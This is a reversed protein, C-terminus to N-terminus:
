CGLLKALAANDAGHARARRVIAPPVPRCDEVGAHRAQRRWRAAQERLADGDSPREWDACHAVVDRMALSIMVGGGAAHACWAALAAHLGTLPDAIADGCFAWGEGAHALLASLGGAVGADDGFAVWNAAPEDRGYGTISIWSLGPRAAILAEAELGLHALARPRSAEIVIDAWEVLRRLCAIDAASGFDLAVCQKGANVLDFFAANGARAGDPRRTSEVKVVQAGLQHLLQGCLPGAWLSSLDLVRPARGGRAEPAREGHRRVRCWPVAVAPLVADAVPLGMMRGREVVAHAQRTRLVAALAEWDDLGDQELWAPLLARDEARALSLALMGDATQLLRCAGGASTRGRRGLGLLAARHALMAGGQRWAAPLVGGAADLAQLVGDACAAVPAPSMCGPLGATGTLWMLGSRAWAMGPSIDPPGERVRVMGGLSSLLSAAYRSACGAGVLTFGRGDLLAPATEAIAARSPQM